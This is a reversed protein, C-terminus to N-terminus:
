LRCDRARVRGAHDVCESEDRDGYMGAVTRDRTFSARMSLKRVPVTLGAGRLFALTDCADQAGCLAPHLLADQAGRDRAAAGRQAGSLAAAASPPPAAGSVGAM